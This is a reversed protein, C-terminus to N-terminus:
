IIPKTTSSSDNRVKETELTKKGVLSIADSFAEVAYSHTAKYTLLVEVDNVISRDLDTLNRTWGCGGSSESVRNTKNNFYTDLRKYYANIERIKDEMWDGQQKSVSLRVLNLEM